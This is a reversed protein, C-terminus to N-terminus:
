KSSSKSHVESILELNFSIVCM